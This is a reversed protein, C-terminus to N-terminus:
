RYGVAITLADDEVSDALPPRGEIRHAHDILGGRDQAGIPEVGDDSVGVCCSKHFALELLM